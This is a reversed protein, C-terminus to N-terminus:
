DKENDGNSYKEERQNGCLFNRNTSTNPYMDFKLSHYSSKLCIDLTKRQRRFARFTKQM